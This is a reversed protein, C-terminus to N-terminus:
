TFLSGAFGVMADTKMYDVDLNIGLGPRDSLYRDGNKIDLPYDIFSNYDSLNYKTTELKYFNPVTMMM